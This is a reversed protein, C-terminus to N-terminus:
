VRYQKLVNQPHLVFTPKQQLIRMVQNHQVIGQTTDPTQTHNTQQQKKTSTLHPLFSWYLETLLCVSKFPAYRVRNNSSRRTEDKKQVLMPEVVLRKRQTQPHNQYYINLYPQVVMTDQHLFFSRLKKYPAQTNQIAVFAVLSGGFSTSSSTSTFVKTPMKLLLNDMFLMKRYLTTNSQHFSVLPQNHLLHSRFPTKSKQTDKDIHLMNKQARLLKCINKKVDKDRLANTYTHVLTDYQEKDDMGGKYTFSNHQLCKITEKQLFFQIVRNQAKLHSRIKKCMVRYEGDKTFAQLLVRYSAFEQKLRQITTQYSTQNNMSSKRTHKPGHLLNEQDDLSKIWQQIDGLLSTYWDCKKIMGLCEITHYNLCYKYQLLLQDMEFVSRNFYAEPHLHAPYVTKQLTSNTNNTTTNTDGRLLKSLSNNLLQHISTSYNTHLQTCQEVYPTNKAPTSPHQKYISMWVNRDYTSAQSFTSANTTSSSLLSDELLALRSDLVFDSYSLFHRIHESVVHQNTKNNM